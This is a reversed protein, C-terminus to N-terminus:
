GAEGIRASIEEAPPIMDDLEDCVEPWSAQGGFRRQTQILYTVKGVGYFFGSRAARVLPKRIEEPLCRLEPMDEIWCQFQLALVGALDGEAVRGIIPEIEKETRYKEINILEHNM